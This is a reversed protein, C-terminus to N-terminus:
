ARIAHKAKTMVHAPKVSVLSLFAGDGHEMDVIQRIGEATPTIDDGTRVTMRENTIQGGPWRTKYTIQWKKM